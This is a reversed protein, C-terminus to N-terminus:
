RRQGIDPDEDSAVVLPHVPGAVRVAADAFRNRQEAPYNGDTITRGGFSCGEVGDTPCGQCQFSDSRGDTERKMTNRGTQSSSITTTTAVEQLRDAVSPASAAVFAGVVM